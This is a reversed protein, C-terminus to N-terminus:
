DQALRQLSALAQEAMPDPVFLHDHYYGAVPNVSIGEAALTTAVRAMFGVAALASHVNLTIMRSPFIGDLGNAEATQQDLILTLGEAEWFAMQPELAKLDTEPPVSAFVFRGPHLVPQMSRILTELNREASM